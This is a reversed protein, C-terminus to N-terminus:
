TPATASSCSSRATGSPGAAPAGVGDLFVHRTEALGNEPSFYVDDFRGSVPVAGDRWTLDPDLPDAM